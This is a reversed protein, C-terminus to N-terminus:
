EQGNRKRLIVDATETQEANSRVRKMISGGCFFVIFIRNYKQIKRCPNVNVYFDSISFIV